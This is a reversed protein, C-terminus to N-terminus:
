RPTSGFPESVLQMEDEYIPYGHRKSTLERVDIGCERVLYALYRVRQICVVAESKFWCVGKDERHPKRSRRFRYPVPLNAKFWDLTKRFETRIFEPTDLDEYLDYAVAFIGLTIGSEEDVQNTVFRIFM